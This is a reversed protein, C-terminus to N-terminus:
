KRRVDFMESRKRDKQIYMNCTIKLRILKKKRIDKRQFFFCHFSWEILFKIEFLTKQLFIEILYTIVFLTDEIKDMNEDDVYCWNDYFGPLIDM